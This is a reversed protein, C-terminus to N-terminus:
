SLHSSVQEPTQHVFMLDPHEGSEVSLRYCHWRRYAHRKKKKKKKKKPIEHLRKNKNNFSPSLYDTKESFLVKHTPVV